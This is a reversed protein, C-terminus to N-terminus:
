EFLLRGNDKYSFVCFVTERLLNWVVAHDMIKRGGVQILPSNPTARKFIPLFDSNCNKESHKSFYKREIGEQITLLDKARKKKIMLINEVSSWLLKRGTQLGEGLLEAM